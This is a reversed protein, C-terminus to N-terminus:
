VYMNSIFSQFKEIRKSLKLKKIMSVKYIIKLNKLLVNYDM